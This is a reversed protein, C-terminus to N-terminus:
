YYFVCSMFFSKQFLEEFNKKNVQFLYYIIISYVNVTKWKKNHGGWYNGEKSIYLGSGLSVAVLLVPCSIIILSLLFFFFSM